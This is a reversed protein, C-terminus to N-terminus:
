LKRSGLIVEFQNNPGVLLRFINFNFFFLLDERKSLQFWQIISYGQIIAFCHFVSIIKRDISYDALRKIVLHRYLYEFRHTVKNGLKGLLCQTCEVQQESKNTYKFICLQWVKLHLYGWSSLSKPKELM